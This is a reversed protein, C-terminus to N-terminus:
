QYVTVSITKLLEVHEEVIDLVRVCGRERPQPSLREDLFLITINIREIELRRDHGVEVTGLESGKDTGIIRDIVVHCWSRTDM